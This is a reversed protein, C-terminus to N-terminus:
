IFHVDKLNSKDIHTNKFEMNFEKLTDAIRILLLKVYSYEACGYSENLEKSGVVSWYTFDYFQHLRNPRAKLIVKVNVSNERAQDLTRGAVHEAVKQDLSSFTKSFAKGDLLRGDAKKVLQSFGKMEGNIKVGVFVKAETAKIASLRNRLKGGVNKIVNPPFKLLKQELPKEVQPKHGKRANGGLFILGSLAILGLLPFLLPALVILAIRKAVEAAKGTKPLPSFTKGVAISYRALPRSLPNAQLSELM